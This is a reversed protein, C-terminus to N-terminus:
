EAGEDLRKEPIGLVAMYEGVVERLGALDDATVRTVGAREDALVTLDMVLQWPDVAHPM